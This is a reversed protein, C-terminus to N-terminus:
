SSFNSDYVVNGVDLDSFEKKWEAYLNEAKHDETEFIYSGSFSEELELEDEAMETTEADYSLMIQNADGCQLYTLHLDLHSIDAESESVETELKRAAGFIRTESENQETAEISGELRDTKSM